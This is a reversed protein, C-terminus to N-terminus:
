FAPHVLTAFVCKSVGINRVKGKEVLKELAQWTPYPNHTLDRNYPEGDKKAVPRSRFNVEIAHFRTIESTGTFSIYTL